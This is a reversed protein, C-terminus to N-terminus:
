NELLKETLESDPGEALFLLKPGISKVITRRADTGMLAAVKILVRAAERKVVDNESHNHIVKTLFSGLEMLQFDDVSSDLVLERLLYVREHMEFTQTAVAGMRETSYQQSFREELDVVYMEGLPGDVKISKAKPVHASGFSRIDQDYYYSAAVLGSIAVVSVLGVGIFLKKM